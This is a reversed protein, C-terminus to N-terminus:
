PSLAKRASSYLVVEFVHSYYRCESLFSKGTEIKRIRLTNRCKLQARDSSALRDWHEVCYSLQRISRSPNRKSEWTNECKMQVPRARSVNKHYM